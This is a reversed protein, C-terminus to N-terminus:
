AEASTSCDYAFICAKRDSVKRSSDNPPPKNAQHTSLTCDCRAKYAAPQNYCYNCSTEYSSHSPVCAKQCVQLPSQSQIDCAPARRQFRSKGANYRSRCPAASNNSSWCAAFPANQRFRRAEARPCTRSATFVTWKTWEGRGRRDSPTKNKLVNFTM